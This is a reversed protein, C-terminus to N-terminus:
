AQFAGQPLYKKILGVMEETPELVLMTRKAEKQYYFYYLEADRNLFWNKRELGSMNILKRFGESNVPGFAEVNKIRMTGLNKRKKNNFVQAFDLEGNTLTYEYEARIRDKRFFLLAALGIFLAAVIMGSVTFEVMIGSLMSFGLLATLVMLINAFYYLVEQMGKHRKVVIEERFHDMAM